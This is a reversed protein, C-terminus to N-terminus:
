AVAMQKSTHEDVTKELSYDIIQRSSGGKVKGDSAHNGTIDISPKKTSKRFVQGKQANCAWQVM